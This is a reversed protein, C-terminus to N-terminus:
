ASVAQEADRLRDEAERAVKELADALCSLRRAEIGAGDAALKAESAKCAHDEGVLCRLVIGLDIARDLAEPATLRLQEVGDDGPYPSTFGEFDAETVATGAVLLGRESPLSHRPAVVYRDGRAKGAAKAQICEARYKDRTARDGFTVSTLNKIM